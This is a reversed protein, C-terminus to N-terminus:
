INNLSFLNYVGLITLVIYDYFLTYVISFINFQTHTHFVSVGVSVYGVSVGVYGVGVGVGV